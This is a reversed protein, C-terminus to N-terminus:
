ANVFLDDMLLQNQVLELAYENEKLGYTTLMVLHINKKTKTSAQFVSVKNRLQAAYSKDILYLDNAFKMECINIINDDRDILLDIQAGQDETKKSKWSAADTYVVTLGLATKIQQIHELCISEFSFGAWSVYSQQTRKKQWTGGGSSRSNHMYKMYFVTFFDTLRYLTQKSRHEFPLYKTVFGSEILEDLTRSFGGGSSLGSVALLTSRTLGARTNSLLQVIKIHREEHEFLSSYLEDFEGHLLGEKDFCLEDIIQAVSRGKRVENLYFPVGGTVMYLQLIDYRGLKVGKAKLLLETEYLNFPLMRIKRTVRNHLGGKSKVVKEIMWSAASGCIVVLLDKRQSAYTNWFNEFATLFRSRRTAMWPFEDFFLVKRKKSKRISSLHLELNAFAELWSTLKPIPRKTVQSLKISFNELQDRQNGHHLGSIKFVIEDKFVQDILYTKGIRRRGYIAILEAKDSSTAESLLVRERTRGVLM